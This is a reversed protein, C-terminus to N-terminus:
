RASPYLAPQTVRSAGSALLGTSRKMLQVKSATFQALRKWNSDSVSVQKATDGSVWGVFSRGAKEALVLDGKRFGHRTTTGGYARRIGGERFQLLHLQRRSIPPRRIVSFAAPTIAVAGKWLAGDSKLSHVSEYRIFESSALAVGDVAHTEPTQDSKKQSKFLGLARRLNATDYGFKTVLECRNVIQELMWNQGVMVPSFRNDGKAKVLEYVVKSVPFIAQLEKLVRLELQRNARISPAVKKSKRNDFRKQRHNRFQFLVNRNIRRSRRTRRMMARTAMRKRVTEFPLVLHAMLLTAKASQVGIGSYKKGPDIGVVVSQTETGSPEGTLQVYFVGVDSWQKVAKGAKLWRRVRSPKAPMLPQHNKDVVPVRM